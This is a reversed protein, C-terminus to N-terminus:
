PICHCKMFLWYYRINDYYRPVYIDPMLTTSLALEHSIKHSIVYMVQWSTTSGRSLKVFAPQKPLLKYVRSQHRFEDLRIFLELHKKFSNQPFARTVASAKSLTVTSIYFPFPFERFICIPPCKGGQSICKFNRAM